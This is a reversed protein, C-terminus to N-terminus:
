ELLTCSIPHLRYPVSSISYRSGASVRHNHIKRRLRKQQPLKDYTESLSLAHGYNGAVKVQSWLVSFTHTNESLFAFIPPAYMLIFPWIVTNGLQILHVFFGISGEMANDLFPDIYRPFVFGLAICGVTFMVLMVVSLPTTAITHLWSFLLAVIRLMPWSQSLTELKDEATDLITIIKSSATKAMSINHWVWCTFVINALKVLEKKVIFDVPM